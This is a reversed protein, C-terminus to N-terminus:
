ANKGYLWHDDSFDYGILEDPKFFLPIEKEASQPSDSGHILNFGKSASFDGRITGPEADTGFTAGMMKRTIKIVDDAEWVMILSPASSLYRVVGEFFPKGKHPAYHEGAVDGHIIMFKTAILKLGKAEFRAIILGALHRQIGDPKIIILTREIM